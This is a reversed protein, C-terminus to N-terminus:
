DMDFCRLYIQQYGKVDIDRPNGTTQPDKYAEEALRPILDPSVGQEELSPIELEEVMEYIYEVAALSARELSMGHTNIGLAQAIRAYKEPEGMWNYEMVPALTAAVAPGHAVPVIGGLTQTMAHVAGASESGYSLGAMLAAMAL